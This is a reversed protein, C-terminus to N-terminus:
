LEPAVCRPFHAGAPVVCQTGEKLTLEHTANTGRWQNGCRLETTSIGSVFPLPGDRTCDPDMAEVSLACECDCVLGDDYAGLPCAWQSVWPLPTTCAPIGAVLECKSYARFDLQETHKFCTLQPLNWPTRLMDLPTYVLQDYPLTGCAPDASAVDSACECDCTTDGYRYLECQWGAPIITPAYGYVSTVDTPAEQLFAIRPMDPPRPTEFAEYFEDMTQFIAYVRAQDVLYSLTIHAFEDYGVRNSCFPMAQARFLQRLEARRREPTAGEASLRRVTMQVILHQARVDAYTEDGRGVSVPFGASTRLASIYADIRSTDSALQVRDLPDMWEELAGGYPPLATALTGLQHSVEHLLVQTIAACEVNLPDSSWQPLWNPASIAPISLLITNRDPFAYATHVFLTAVDSTAVNLEYRRTSATFQRYSNHLNVEFLSAHLQASERPVTIYPTTAQDLNLVITELRQILGDHTAVTMLGSTLADDLHARWTALVRPWVVTEIGDFHGERVLKRALPNTTWSNFLYPRTGLPDTTDVLMWACLQTRLGQSAVPASVFAGELTSRATRRKVVADLRQLADSFLVANGSVASDASTRNLLTANEQMEQLHEFFIDQRAELQEISTIKVRTFERTPHTPRAPIQLLDTSTDTPVGPELSRFHPATPLACLNATTGSAGSTCVATASCNLLGPSCGEIYTHPRACMPDLCGFGCYCTTVVGNGSYFTSNYARGLYTWGVPVVRECRARRVPSPVAITAAATFLACHSTTGALGSTGCSLTKFIQRFPAQELNGCDPDTCTDNPCCECNCTFGDGYLEPACTWGAPVPRPPRCGYAGTTMNRACSITGPNSVHVFSNSKVSALPTTTAEFYDAPTWCQLGRSQFVGSNSYSLDTQM